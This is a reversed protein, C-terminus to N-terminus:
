KFLDDDYVDSCPEVAKRAPVAKAVPKLGTPAQGSHDPIDLAQTQREKTLDRIPRVRIRDRAQGMAAQLNITHHHEHQVRDGYEKPLKKSVYWKFADVKLRARAVDPETEVIDLVSDAMAHIGRAKAREVRDSLGPVSEVAKEWAEVDVRVFALVGNLTEGKSVMSLVREICEESVNSM